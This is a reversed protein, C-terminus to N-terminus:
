CCKDLFCSYIANLCMIELEKLKKSDKFTIKFFVTAIKILPWGYIVERALPPPPLYIRSTEPQPLPLLYTESPVDSGYSSKQYIEKDIFRKKQTHGM